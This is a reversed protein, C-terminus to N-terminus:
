ATEGSSDKKSTGGGLYLDVIREDGLLDQGRGEYRNRGMELVYGRNAIQLARRANQEVLLISVGLKNIERIKDLIADVLAPALGASPEDLLLVDPERVLTRAMALMQREGGSLTGARQRRRERLPQFLGFVATLREEDAVSGGASSVRINDEVSLNPFVNLRQPVYGLGRRVIAHPQDGTIERGHLHVAGNRPRVLGVISKVLTSKGSGNPGVIVVLEGRELVLNIGKLIDIEPVYGAV